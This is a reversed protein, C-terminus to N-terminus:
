SREELGQWVITGKGKDWHEQRWARARTGYDSNGKGQEGAFQLQKLTSVWTGKGKEYTRAGTAKGRHWQNRVSTRTGKGGNGQGEERTEKGWHEKRTGKDMHWQGQAM